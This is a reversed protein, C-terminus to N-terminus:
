SSVPSTARWSSTDRKEFGDRHGDATSFRGAGPLRNTCRATASWGGPPRHTTGADTAHWRSCVTWSRPDLRGNSPPHGNRCSRPRSERPTHERDGATRGARGSPLRRGGRNVSVGLATLAALMANPITGWVVPQVSEDGWQGTRGLLLARNSISKSGPLTVEGALASVPTLTLQPQDLNVNM